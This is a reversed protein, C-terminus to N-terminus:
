VSASPVQTSRRPRQGSRRRLLLALAVAIAGAGGSDERSDTACSGCGRASATAGGPPTASASAPPPHILGLDPVDDRLLSVLDLGGRPAFALSQAVQPAGADAGGPPEGWIGRRPEACTIPGQWAHRIVYRAQFNNYGSPVAGHERPGTRMGGTSIGDVERGGAIPEASKFVLDEGLDEKGYRLHIRSIVLDSANWRIGRARVPQATADAVFTVPIVITAEGDVPPAFQAASVRASVCSILSGSLGHAEKPTVSIVEGNRGIKAEIRISGAMSPDEILVKNYCRRFGASMGAIVPSGNAVRESGEPKGFSANGVPVTATFDVGLTALDEAPLPPSPCPDCSGAGWAYETLAASPTAALTRDFLAAYFAPFRDRVAETVDLNTPITLAPRNAIEYRQRPALVHVILDQTGPSNLLGLRVPLALTEADYQIRLPSLMAAGNEFHVRAPDVKAVFFKMGAQVYPRLAGAAGSPIRYGHQYLWADLSLSDAASLIEVDYEGVAFRAEVKVDGGPGGLSLGGAAGPVIKGGMIGADGGRSGACPDQEWYEVLRPATLKDLRDFVDRPLTKVSEQQLVVPVPVVLAFGEPPGRYHNAMSLVTRTGARALVVMTAENLLRAEAGAVYFGCFASATRPVAIVFLAVALVTVTSIGLARDRM